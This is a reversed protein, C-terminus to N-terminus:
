AKKLNAQVAAVVEALHAKQADATMKRVARRTVPLKVKNGNKVSSRKGDIYYVVQKRGAVSAKVQMRRAAAKIAAADAVTMETPTVLIACRKNNVIQNTVIAKTAEKTVEVPKKAVKEKKVAKEKKPAAVVNAGFVLGLVAAFYFQRSFKSLFM